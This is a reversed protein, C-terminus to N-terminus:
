KNEPESGAPNEPNGWIRKDEWNLCSVYFKFFKDTCKQFNNDHISPLERFNNFCSAFLSAIVDRNLKGSEEAVKGMENFKTFRSLSNWQWMTPTEPKQPCNLWPFLYFIVGADVLITAAKEVAAFKARDAAALSDIFTDRRANSDQQAAEFQEGNDFLYKKEM